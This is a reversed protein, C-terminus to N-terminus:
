NPTYVSAFTRHIGKSFKVKPYGFIVFLGERSTFKIGQKERFATAKKGSQIMPHIGGLMCTGLGLSEGAIMAYTAAILPDAPDCYPSGYFYMAVPADYTVLDVGKKMNGIYIDFMPKVFKTFLDNNAKSLFPRMLALFWKSVFWQISELYACFAKSFKRVKEPSDLILINVDSPPIGMPATTAANLIKDILAKEVPM